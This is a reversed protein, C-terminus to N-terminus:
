HHHKNNVHQMAMICRYLGPLCCHKHRSAQQMKAAGNVDQSRAYCVQM